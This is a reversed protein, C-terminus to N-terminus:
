VRAAQSRGSVWEGGPSWGLNARWRPHLALGALKPSQFQRGSVLGVRALRLNFIFALRFLLWVSVTGV